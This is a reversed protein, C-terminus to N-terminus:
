LVTVRQPSPATTDSGGCSSLLLIAVALRARDPSMEGGREVRYRGEIAANLRTIPDTM